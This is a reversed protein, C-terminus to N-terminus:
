GRLPRLDGEETHKKEMSSRGLTAAMSRMLTEGREREKERAETGKSKYSKRVRVDGHAVGSERQGSGVVSAMSNTLTLEFCLSVLLVLPIRSVMSVLWRKCYLASVTIKDLSGGALSPVVVEPWQQVEERGALVAGASAVEAWTTALGGGLHQDIFHSIARSFLTSSVNLYLFILHCFSNRSYLFCFFSSQPMHHM